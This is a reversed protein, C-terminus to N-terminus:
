GVSAFSSRPDAGITWHVNQGPAVLLQPTRIPSAGGIPDAQLVLRWGNLQATVPLALTTQSLGAATGLRVRTGRSVLYIDMDNFNQNDIEVRTRAESSDASAQAAKPAPMMSPSPSGGCAASLVVLGVLGARVTRM